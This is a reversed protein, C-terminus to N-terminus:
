DINDEIFDELPDMVEIFDELPDMEYLPYIDELADM